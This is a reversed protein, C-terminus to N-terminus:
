RMGFFIRSQAAAAIRLVPQAALGSALSIASRKFFSGANMAATALATAACRGDSGGLGEGVGLADADVLLAFSRRARLISM